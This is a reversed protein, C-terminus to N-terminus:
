GSSAEVVAVTITEARSEVAVSLPAKRDGVYLM